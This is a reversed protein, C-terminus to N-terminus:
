EVGQGRRRELEARLRTWRDGNRGERVAVGIARRSGVLIVLRRGRTIATYLLDRRLMPYHQMSIPLVVVPFESGQAKHVTVAYAPVLADLEGFAYTM